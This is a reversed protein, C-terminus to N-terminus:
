MKIHKVDNKNNTDVLPTMMYLAWMFWIFRTDYLGGSFLSAIFYLLGLAFLFDHELSRIRFWQLIVSLLIFSLLILGFIGGESMIHLIINHPYVFPDGFTQHYGDLGVGFLPKRLFLYLANEYFINRYSFYRERFTLEVYRRNFFSLFTNNIYLPYSIILITLSVLSGLFMKSINIYKPIILLLVFIQTILLALIGGRSGSALATVLFLPIVALWRLSGQKISLYLSAFVGSSVVRVFVNPGGGFASMRGASIGNVLGASAYILASWFILQFLFEISKEYESSFAGPLLLLIVVVLLLEPILRVSEQWYPTWLVSITMYIHLLITVIIFLWFRDPFKKNTIKRRYSYESLYNVLITIVALYTFWFAPKGWFGINSLSPNIRRLTFKGALMALFVVLIAFYKPKSHRIIIPM